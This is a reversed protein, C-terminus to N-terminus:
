GRWEALQDGDQREIAVRDFEVEVLCNPRQDPSEGRCHIASGQDPSAVRGELVLVFRQPAAAEEPPVSRVAQYARDGARAVRSSAKRYVQMLGIVPATAAPPTNAKVIAQPRQPCADGTLWPRAFWFGQIAEVQDDGDLGLSPASATWDVPRVEVSLRKKKADYTWGGPEVASTGDPGNCGFPIRVQFRRGRLMSPAATDGGAAFASAAASAARIIESRGLPPPPLPPAPPPQPAPAPESAAAAAKEPAESPKGCGAMVLCSALAVVFEAAPRGRRDRSREHIM